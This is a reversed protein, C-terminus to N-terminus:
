NFHLEVDSVVGPPHSLIVVALAKTGPRLGLPKILVIPLQHDLVAYKVFKAWIHFGSNLLYCVTVTLM